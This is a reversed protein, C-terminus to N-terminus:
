DRGRGFSGFSDEENTHFELGTGGEIRAIGEIFKGFKGGRGTALDHAVAGLFELGGDRASENAAALRTFEGLM